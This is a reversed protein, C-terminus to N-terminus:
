LEAHNLRKSHVLTGLKLGNKVSTKEKINHNKMKGATELIARLPLYPLSNGTLSIDLQELLKMITNM